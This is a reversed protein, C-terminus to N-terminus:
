NGARDCDGFSVTDREAGLGLDSCYVSFCRNAPPGPPELLGKEKWGAAVRTQIHDFQYFILSSEPINAGMNSLKIFKYPNYLKKYPYYLRM